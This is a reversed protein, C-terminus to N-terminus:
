NITTIYVFLKECSTSYPINGTDVMVRNAGSQLKKDNALGRM